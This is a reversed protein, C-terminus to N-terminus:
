QAAGEAVTLLDSDGPDTVTMVSPSAHTLSSFVSLSVRLFREGLASFNGPQLEWLWTRVLSIICQPRPYCPM